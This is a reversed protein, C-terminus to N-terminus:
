ANYANSRAMKIGRTQGKLNESISLGAADDSAKVIRSGSSMAQLAHEQRAQNKGLNKQAAISAINTNIRLGMLGGCVTLETAKLSIVRTGYVSSAHGDQSNTLIKRNSHLGRAM